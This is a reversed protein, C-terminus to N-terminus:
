SEVLGQILEQFEFAPRKFIVFGNDLQDLKHGWEHLWKKYPKRLEGKKTYPGSTPVAYSVQIYSVKPKSSRQGETRQTLKKIQIPMRGYDGLNIVMDKGLHDLNVGMEVNGLGYIEEAVYAGQIQTLISAWTRYIRAPLGRYFTEHSFRSEVRWAELINSKSKKYVEYFEEYDLWDSKKKWYEDYLTGLAQVNKPMDLEVIKIKRYKDRYLDLDIGTLFQNFSELHYPM